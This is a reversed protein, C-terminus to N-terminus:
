KKVGHKKLISMIDDAGRPVETSKGTNTKDAKPTEKPAESPNKWLDDIQKEFDAIQNQSSDIRNKASQRAAGISTMMQDFSSNPAFFTKWEQRDQLTGGAGSANASSALKTLEAAVEQGYLNIAENQPIGAVKKVANLFANAAPLDVQNKERQKKVAEALNDLNAMATREFGGLQGLKKTQDAISGRLNKARQINVGVEQPTLWPAMEQVAATAAPLNKVGANGGAMLTGALGGGASGKGGAKAIARNKEAASLYEETQAKTKKLDEAFKLNEQNSKVTAWKSKFEAPSGASYQAIVNDPMLPQGGITPMSKVQAVRQAKASEFALNAEQETKGAAKADDYAKLPGEVNQNMFDLKKSYGELEENGAKAYYERMKAQNTLSEQHAQTLTQYTQPSVRGKLKEAASALGEPTEFNAGSKLAEQIIQQDQKQQQVEQQKEMAGALQYVQGAQQAFSPQQTVSLPIQPDLAM